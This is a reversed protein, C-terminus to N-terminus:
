SKLHNDSFQYPKTCRLPPALGRRTRRIACGTAANDSELSYTVVALALAWTLAPLFPYALLYCLYFALATLVMLVLALVRERPLWGRGTADLDADTSRDNM